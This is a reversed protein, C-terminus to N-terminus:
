NRFCSLPGKRVGHCTSVLHGEVSSEVLSKARKKDLRLFEAWIDNEAATSTRLIDM